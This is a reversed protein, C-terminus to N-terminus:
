FPTSLWLFEVMPKRLDLVRIHLYFQPSKGLFNEFAGEKWKRLKPIQCGCPQMKAAVSCLRLVILMGENNAFRSRRVFDLGLVGMRCSLVFSFRQHSIAYCGRVHSGKAKGQLQVVILVRILFGFGLTLSSSSSGGSKEQYNGSLSCKAIM